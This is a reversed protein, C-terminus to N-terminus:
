GSRLWPPESEFEHRAIRLFTESNFRKVAEVLSSSVSSTGGWNSLELEDKVRTRRMHLMDSWISSTADIFDRGHVAYIAYRRYAIRGEDSRLGVFVYMGGRRPPEGYRVVRKRLRGVTEPPGQTKLEFGSETVSHESSYDFDSYEDYRGPSTWRTVRDFKETVDVPLMYRHQLERCLSWLYESPDVAAFLARSFAANAMTAQDRLQEEQRERAL